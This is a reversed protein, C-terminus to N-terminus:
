ANRPHLFLKVFNAIGNGHLTRNKFIHNTCYSGVKTGSSLNVPKTQEHCKTNAKPIWPMTYVTFGQKYMIKSPMCYSKIEINIAHVSTEICNELGSTVIFLNPQGHEINHLGWFCGISRICVMKQHYHSSMKLM